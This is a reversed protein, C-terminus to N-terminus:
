PKVKGLIYGSYGGAVSVVDYGKSELAIATKQSRIGLHCLLFYQKDMDLYEKPNAILKDMPINVVGPLHGNQYEFEERIDIISEVDIEDLHCCDVSYLGNEDELIEM